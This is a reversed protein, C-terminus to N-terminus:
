GSVTLNNDSGDNDSFEQSGQQSNEESDSFSVEKEKDVASWFANRQEPSSLVQQQLSPDAQFIGQLGENVYRNNQDAALRFWKVAEQTNKQWGVGKDETSYCLGLNYYIHANKEKSALQRFYKVAKSMDKFAKEEGIGNAYCLAIQHHAPAYGLEAARRFHQMAETPNIPIGGGLQYFRGLQFTAYADGQDAALRYCHIASNAIGLNDVTSQYFKKDLTSYIKKFYYDGLQIQAKLHGQEAASNYYQNKRAVRAEHNIDEDAIMGKEYFRGLRYQAEAYGGEDASLQYWRFAEASDKVAGKLGKEHCLGVQFQAEPDGAKARLRYTKLSVTNDKPFFVVDMVFCSIDWLVILTIGMLAISFVSALASSIGAFSSAIFTIAGELFPFSMLFTPSFVSLLIVLLVSISLGVAVFFGIQHNKLWETFDFFLSETVSEFIEHENEAIHDFLCKAAAILTVLAAIAAVGSLVVFLFKLFAISALLTAVWPIGTLFSPVVLSGIGLSHILILGFFALVM